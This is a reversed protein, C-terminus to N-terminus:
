PNSPQSGHPLNFLESVTCQFEPLVGNGTLIDGNDHVKPFERPRYSTVVRDEPDVVWVMQVGSDLYQKVRRLIKSDRDTPSRVEVVLAPMTEVHGASLSDVSRNKLFLMIDPGRVTDPNRRLILGTDNTTLYGAGRKLLYAGLIHSVLWCIVGHLEGPSPMIVVKGNVLEFNRDHQEPRNAWEFFEEATMLPTDTITTSM